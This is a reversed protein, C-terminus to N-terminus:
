GAVRPPTSRTVARILDRVAVPSWVFGMFLLPLCMWGWYYNWRKGLYAFLFLYIIATWRCAASGPQNWAILGLVALPLYLAACWAPLLVLLYNMRVTALILRAGLASFWQGARAWVAVNPSHRAVCRAHVAYLFMGVLIVAVLGVVIDRRKEQWALMTLIIVAPLALERLGLAVAAALASWGWRGFGVFCVSIGVFVGSWLEMFYTPYPYALWGYAGLLGVGATLGLVLGGQRGILAGALAALAVVCTGIITRAWVLSPATAMLWAYVPTRWNFSSSTPYRRATLEAATAPYYGEGSRFRAVVAEFLRGDNKDVHFYGVDGHYEEDVIADVVCCAMALGTLVLVGLAHTPRLRAFRTM